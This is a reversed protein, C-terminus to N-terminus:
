RVFLEGPKGPDYRAVYEKVNMKRATNASSMWRIAGFVPRIPAWPRDHRGLVWFIGSYSNPNRGDLAWKNNLEIMVDLATRPDPTWEVIKKGWLMRLYNHIRGERVLQTQAANWLPDHTRAAEFEELPYTRERPDAAHEDLTRRAWDPLSEYRDHDDRHACFNYGLERWTVLQDLFSEAAASMGWWGEREGRGGPSLSAPTWREANAVARLVEHASLHGFHLYPSLGSSRDQAADKRSEAYHPLRERVFTELAGRAAREGGPTDVPFVARDLGDPLPADADLRAATWRAAVADPLHARPLGRAAALADEAPFADLHAPLTRHLFRRFAYATPFASEAARMPVIGNSDVAELRVPLRAGAAAVMRPLFFAPFDDTVVACADRALAELLGRGDGDRPEVYAHYTVGAAACRAANDAMGARVFAHFRPSAWRHGCRLAELVLLPKGRAKALEVARDLGFHFSTRRAAVMWYLVFTGDDRPPADNVARIRLAPVTM